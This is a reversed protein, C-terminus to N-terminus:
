AVAQHAEVAADDPERVDALRRQEVSQGARPDLRLVKREAGDLRIRAHHRDGIRAEVADGLDDFGGAHNRAGHLEDVDGPQHRARGLALAQAVPEEGVDALGVGDGVHHAAEGVVVDGVDGPANRGEVVDFHDLRFECQGIQLRGVADVVAVPPNGIGAVLVRLTSTWIRSRTRSASSAPVGTRACPSASCSSAASRSHWKMVPLGTMYM